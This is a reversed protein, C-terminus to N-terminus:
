SIYELPNVVNGDIRVEFHLHTGTAMGTQGAKAIVQGKKVMDGNKVLLSSCHAYLTTIGGGHNVIVTYGYGDQWGAFIVVGQNAAVISAGYAADIDVGTHMKYKKLIPHLRNGFYSDIKKCSPVPWVMTGGAYKKSGGIKRIQNAIQISQQILSDEQKELNKLKEESEKIKGELGHRTAILENIIDKKESLENKKTSKINEVLQKKYLTDKKIAQFEKIIDKDKKAISSIVEMRQFFDVLNKSDALIDIYSIYSNKYMIVLRKQFEESQKGYKEEAQKLSDEYKQIEANLLDLEKTLKEYEENEEEHNSIVAQKEEELQNRQNYIEKKEQEIQNLKNDIETMKDNVNNKNDAMTPIICTVCLVAVLFIIIYKKM